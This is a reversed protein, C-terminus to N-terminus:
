REERVYSDDRELGRLAEADGFARVVLIELQRVDRRLSEVDRVDLAHVYLTLPDQRVEVTLTGPTLTIADAVVTAVADSCGDLPLAVIGTRVRDRPAIVTRAVTATSVLLKWTFWATLRVLAVPRIAITGPRWTDFAFTIITAVILGSVVNAASLDSWCLLWVVTLWAIRVVRSM